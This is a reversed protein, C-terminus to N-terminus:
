FLLPLSKNASLKCPPNYKGFSVLSNECVPVQLEWGLPYKGGSNVFKRWFNVWVQDDNARKTRSQRMIRSISHSDMLPVMLQFIALATFIGAFHPSPPPHVWNQSILNINMANERSCPNEMRHCYIERQAVQVAAWELSKHIRLVNQKNCAEFLKPGKCTKLRKSRFSWLIPFCVMKYQSLSRTKGQIRKDKRKWERKKENRRKRWDQPFIPAAGPLSQINSLPSSISPGPEGM